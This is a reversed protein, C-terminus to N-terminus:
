RASQARPLLLGAQGSDARGALGAGPAEACPVVPPAPRSPGLRGPVASFGPVFEREPSWRLKFHRRAGRVAKEMSNLYPKTDTKLADRAGWGGPPSCGQGERETAPCLTNITGPM